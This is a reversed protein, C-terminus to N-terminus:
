DYAVLDDLIEEIVEILLNENMPKDMMENM